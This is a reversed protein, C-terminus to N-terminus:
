RGVPRGARTGGRRGHGDRDHPGRDRRAGPGVGRPAARGAHDAAGAGALPVRGAPGGLPRRGGRGAGAAAPRGAGLGPPLALQPAVGTRAQGLSRRLALVAWDRQAPGENFYAPSCLALVIDATGVGYSGEDRGGTPAAPPVLRRFRPGDAADLRRRLEDLFRAVWAEDRGHAYSVAYRYVPVM